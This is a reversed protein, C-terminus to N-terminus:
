QKVKSNVNNDNVVRYDETVPKITFIKNFKMKPILTVPSSTDVIIKISRNNVLLSKTYFPPGTKCKTGMSQIKQQISHIRDPIWDDEDTSYTEEDAIHNLKRTTRCCKDYDGVKGGKICIKGRAPCERQKCWNPAGCKNCDMRRTKSYRDTQEISNKLKRKDM